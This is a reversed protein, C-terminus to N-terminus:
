AKPRAADGQKKCTCLAPDPGYAFSYNDRWVGCTAPHEAHCPCKCPSPATYTGQWGDCRGHHKNMCSLTWGEMRKLDAVAKEMEADTMM